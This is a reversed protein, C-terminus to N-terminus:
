WFMGTATLHSTTIFSDLTLRDIQTIKWTTTM